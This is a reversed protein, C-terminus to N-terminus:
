VNSHHSVDKSMNSAPICMHLTCVIIVIRSCSVHFPVLLITASCCRPKRDKHHLSGHGGLLLMVLRLALSFATYHCHAASILWMPTRCSLSFSGWACRQARRLPGPWGSQAHSGGQHFHVGEAGSHACAGGRGASWEGFHESHGDPGWQLPKLHPVAACDQNTVGARGPDGKPCDASVQPFLCRQPLRGSDM